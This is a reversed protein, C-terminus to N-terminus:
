TECIVRLSINNEITDTKVPYINKKLGIILPGGLGTCIAYFDVYSLFFYKKFKDHWIYNRRLQRFLNFGNFNKFNRYITQTLIYFRLNYKEKFSINKVNKQDLETLKQFKWRIQDRWVIVFFITYLIFLMRTIASMM